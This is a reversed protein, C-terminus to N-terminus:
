VGTELNQNQICFHDIEQILNTVAVIKEICYKNTDLHSMLTAVEDNTKCVTSIIDNNENNKLLVLYSNM